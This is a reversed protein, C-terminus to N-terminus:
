LGDISFLQFIGFGNIIVSKDINFSQNFGVDNRIKDTEGGLISCQIM